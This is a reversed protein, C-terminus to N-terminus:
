QQVGDFINMVSVVDYDQGFGVANLHIIAKQSLNLLTIPTDPTKAPLTARPTVGEVNGAIISDYRWDMANKALSHSSVGDSQWGSGFTGNEVCTSADNRFFLRDLM